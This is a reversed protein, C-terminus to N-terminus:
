RRIEPTSHVENNKNENRGAKLIKRMAQGVRRMQHLSVTARMQSLCFNFELRQKIMGITKVLSVHTAPQKKLDLKTDSVPVAMQKGDKQKLLKPPDDDEGKNDFWCIKGGQNHTCAEQGQNSCGDRSNSSEQVNTKCQCLIGKKEHCSICAKSKTSSACVTNGDTATKVTM